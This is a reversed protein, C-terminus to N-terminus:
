FFLKWLGIVILVLGVVIFILKGFLPNQKSDVFFENPSSPNYYVDVKDGQKYQGAFSVQFDQRLPATIWEMSKTVFRVQVESNHMGLSTTSRNQSGDIRFIIGEAKIGSNKLASKNDTTRFFSLVLVVLGIFIFLYPILDDM